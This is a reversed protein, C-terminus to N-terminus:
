MIRDADLVVCKEERWMLIRFVDILNDVDGTNVFNSVSKVIQELKFM